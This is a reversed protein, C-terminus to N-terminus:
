GRKQESVDQLKEIDEPLNEILGDTEEGKVREAPTFDREIDSLIDDQVRKDDDNLEENYEELDSDNLTKSHHKFVEITDKENGFIENPDGINRTLVETFKDM